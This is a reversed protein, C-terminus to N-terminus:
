VQSRTWVWLDQQKVSLCSASFRTSFVVSKKLSLTVIEVAIM